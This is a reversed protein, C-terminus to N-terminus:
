ERLLRFYFRRVSVLYSAPMWYYIIRLSQLVEDSQSCHFVKCFYEDEVTYRYFGELSSCVIISRQIWLFRGFQFLSNHFTTDM